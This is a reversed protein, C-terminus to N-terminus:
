SIPVSDKMSVFHESFDWPKEEAEASSDEIMQECGTRACGGNTCFPSGVQRGFICELIVACNAEMWSAKEEASGFVTAASSGKMHGVTRV